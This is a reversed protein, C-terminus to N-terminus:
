EEKKVLLVYYCEDNVLVEWGKLQMLVNLPIDVLEIPTPEWRIVNTDPCYLTGYGYHKWRLDKVLEKTGDSLGTAFVNQVGIATGVQPLKDSAYNYMYLLGFALLLPM